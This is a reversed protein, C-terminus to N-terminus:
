KFPQYTALGPNIGNNLQELIIPSYLYGIEKGVTWTLSIMTGYPPFFGAAGMIADISHMIGTGTAGINYAQIAEISSQAISCANAFNLGHGLIKGVKAVNKTTVYQNGKWGNPYYKFDFKGKSNTLRYTAHSREMAKFFQDAVFSTVGVMVNEFHYGPKPALHKGIITVEGNIIKGESWYYTNNEDNYSLRSTFENDTMYNWGSFDHNGLYGGRLADFFAAIQGPDNTSWYDMGFWDINSIPNNACYGYPTMSHYKEAKPDMTMWRGSKGDLMRAGFDYTPNTSFDQMEMRGFLYRNSTSAYNTNPHRTGFPYYDNRELVEGEDDVLVRVSGLHDTLAYVMGEDTLFGDTTNALALSPTEDTVSYLFRGLYDFGDTSAETRAALKTGDALYTYTAKVMGNEKVQHLLNLSNYTFELGNAHDKTMNGNYDYEYSSGNLSSLKNGDYSFAQNDVTSGSATRQLTLINGNRDYTIGKETYGNNRPNWESGNKLLHVTETLRGAGDYSFGYLQSGEDGQKWSWESVNGSYLPETGAQASEYHLEMRFADSEKSVLWGRTNYAYSETIIGGYRKRALRGLEDYEYVLSAQAEGNLTSHVNLLRSRDDYTYVSELIDNGHKEQRKVINGIFDYAYNLYSM